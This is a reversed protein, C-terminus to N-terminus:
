RVAETDYKPPRRTHLVVAEDADFLSWLFAPKAAAAADFLDLHRDPDGLYDIVGVKCGVLPRLDLAAIREGANVQVSVGGTYALGHCGDPRCLELMVFRPKKGAKRLAILAEMGKM